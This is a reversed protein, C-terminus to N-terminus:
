CSNCLMRALARRAASKTLGAGAGKPWFEAACRQKSLRLIAICLNARGKASSGRSKLHLPM